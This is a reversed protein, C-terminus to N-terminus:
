PRPRDWHDPRGARHRGLGPRDAPQRAPSRRHHRGAGPLRDAASPGTRPRHQMGGSDCRHRDRDAPRGRLRAPWDPARASWDGARGKLVRPLLRRPRRATYETPAAAEGPRLGVRAPSRAPQAIWPHFNVRTVTGAPATHRGPSAPRVRGGSGGCAGTPIMAPRAAAGNGDCTVTVLCIIEAVDSGQGSETHIRAGIPTPRLEQPRAHQAWFAMLVVRRDTFEAAQAANRTRQGPGPWRPWGPTRRDQYPLPCALAPCAHEPRGAAPVSPPTPFEAVIAFASSAM